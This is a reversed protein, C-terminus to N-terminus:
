GNSVQGHAATARALFVVSSRHSDMADEEDGRM